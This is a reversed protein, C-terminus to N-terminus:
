ATTTARRDEEKLNRLRRCRFYVFQILICTDLLVCGGADVLWPLNARIKSWEMSKVLISAVYTTNGVLAFIFMFPSLGEVHGRKINLCIQPLRGGMYIIAMGWGLITGIGSSAEGEDSVMLISSNQLLKRGVQIVVGQPGEERRDSASFHFNCSSVFFTVAFIVCLMNKTNSPPASQRSVLTGLLPEEVPHLDHNPFQNSGQETEQVIYSGAPPTHCKSLSRASMYYLDRGLTGYRPLVPATVPIPSSPVDSGRAWGDGLKDHEEASICSKKNETMTSQMSVTNHLSQRNSKLRHYIYAYYFSQSTLLLTTITYLMATYYQTPLTAPELLCGFLNFLDGLIWTILFAISLGETSKRNYNTIIQPVEAVGWSLVSLAGLVLSLKDRPSCLCYKLYTEAWRWCGRERPCISAM